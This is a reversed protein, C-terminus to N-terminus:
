GTERLHKDESPQGSGKKIAAATGAAAAIIELQTEDLEMLDSVIRAIRRPPEYFAGSNRLLALVYELGATGDVAQEVTIKVTKCVAYLDAANPSRIKTKAMWGDITPKSVGSAESIQKVTMGAETFAARLNDKLMM